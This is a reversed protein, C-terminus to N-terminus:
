FDIITPNQGTNLYRILKSLNSELKADPNLINQPDFIQKIERYLELERASFQKNCFAAKVRGDNGGGSISGYNDTVLKTYQQMFHLAERRDFPNSLNFKPRVSYLDNSLSGFIPLTQGIKTELNALDTAFQSLQALDISVNDILPTRRKFPDSNFYNLLVKDFAFDNIKQDQLIFFQRSPLKKLQRIKRRVSLPHDNLKVGVTYGHPSIKREFPLSKGNNTSETLIRNDVLDIALPALRKITKAASIVAKLSEFELVVTQASRPTPECRLIIETIVGLSGNSALFLPLLDFERRSNEVETIMRYGAFTPTADQLEDILEFRNKILNYVSSYINSETSDSNKFLRKLGRPTLKVSQLLDGNSLVVEIRDIFNLIGGHKQATQDYNFGSILGGITAQGSSSMPISLNYTALAANLQNLTVGAQVRVLRSHEDIEQIQNLKETSILLGNSLSAGTFDLGSGRVSIPLKLGKKAFDHAFNLLFSVDATNQPLAVFRPMVRLISRDSAYAALIAPQDYVNGVLHQNLYQTIKNLYM